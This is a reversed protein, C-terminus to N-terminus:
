HAPAVSPGSMLGGPPRMMGDICFPITHGSPDICSGAARFSRTMETNDTAQPSTLTVRTGQNWGLIESLQAWFSSFWDAQVRHTDSTAFLPGAGVNPVASFLLAAALAVAALPRAFARTM